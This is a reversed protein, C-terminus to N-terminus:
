QTLENKTGLVFEFIQAFEFPLLTLTYPKKHIHNRFSFPFPDNQPAKKDMTSNSLWQNSDATM